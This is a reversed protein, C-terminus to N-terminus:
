LLCEFAGGGQDCGWQNSFMGSSCDGAEFFDQGGDSYTCSGTYSVGHDACTGDELVGPLASLGFSDVECLQLADEASMCPPMDRCSYNNASFANDYRCNKIITEECSIGPFTTSGDALYHSRFDAVYAANDDNDYYSLMEIKAFNREATYIVFTMEVIDYSPPDDYGNYWITGLSPYPHKSSNWTWFRPDFFSAGKPPYGQFGPGELDAVSVSTVSTFPDDVKYFLVGEEENVIIDAGRDIGPEGTFMIDWEGDFPGDHGVETISNSSFDFYVDHNEGDVDVNAKGLFMAGVNDDADTNFYKPDTFEFGECGLFMTFVVVLCLLHHEQLKRLKKMIGGKVKRIFFDPITSAQM